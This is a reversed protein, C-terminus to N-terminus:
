SFNFLRTSSSFRTGISSASVLIGRWLDRLEDFRFDIHRVAGTFGVLAFVYSIHLSVVPIIWYAGM